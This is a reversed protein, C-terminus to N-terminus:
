KQKSYNIVYEYIEIAKKYEPACVGKVYGCFTKKNINLPRWIDENKLGKDYMMVQICNIWKCKEEKNSWESKEPEPIFTAITEMDVTDILKKRKKEKITKDFSDEYEYGEIEKCRKIKDLGKDRIRRVNSESMGLIEGIEVLTMPGFCDFGCYSSIIYEEEASLYKRWNFFEIREIEAEMSDDKIGRWTEDLDYYGYNNNNLRQIGQIVDERVRKVKKKYEEVSTGYAEKVWRGGSLLSGTEKLYDIMRYKLCKVVVAEFNGYDGDEHKTFMEIITLMGEQILDDFGCCPNLIRRGACAYVYPTLKEITEELTLGNIRKM